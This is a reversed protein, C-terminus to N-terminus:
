KAVHFEAAGIDPTSAVPKGNQDHTATSGIAADIVPSGPLPPMIETSGGYLGLRNLRPHIPSVPAGILNQDSGVVLTSDKNNGILSRRAHIHGSIIWLDPGNGTAAENGAVVSADLEVQAKELSSIGGGGHLTRTAGKSSNAVVTCHELRTKGDVVMVAGAVRGAENHAFTCRRLTVVGASTYIAGGSDGARNGSLTCDTLSLTGLNNIAGGNGGASNNTLTCRVLSLTGNNGLAGGNQAASNGTILCDILTAEGDILMAAGYPKAGATLTVGIFHAKSGAGIFIHNTAGIAVRGPLDSGDCTVPSPDTIHLFESTLLIVQHSLAPAFTITNPGPIKEADLFAQRLSGPGSDNTNVVVTSLAAAIPQGRNPRFTLLGGIVVFLVAALTMFFKTQRRPPQPLDRNSSPEGPGAQIRELDRRLEVSSQYRAEPKPQMAREIIADFRADTGVRASPMEWFGRPIEGTLMQYLTVGLAYVDARGDLTTNPTWAEPALFDPTGIAVNTKTLGLLAADDHKALGFDAIKVTGDRNLLLNAPKMDRHVVGREHAYHLADCVESLLKTALEPALKGGSAIMRAVDTGDMLEMVIYLLGGAEGSEFVSVIGPHTLKAMTLAEQRFRAAFNAEGDKMLNAPLVKIAVRRNLSLQTAKYVAGMGGRGILAVFQYAPLLEQLESVSPPQWVRRSKSSPAIPAPSSM